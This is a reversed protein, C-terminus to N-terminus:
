KLLTAATAAAKKAKAPLVAQEPEALWKEFQSSNAGLGNSNLLVFLRVIKNDTRPLQFLAAVLRTIAACTVSQNWTVAENAAIQAKALAIHIADTGGILLTELSLFHEAVPPQPSPPAPAAEPSPAPMNEM